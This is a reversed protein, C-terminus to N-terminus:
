LRCVPFSVQIADHTVRVSPEIDSELYYRDALESFAKKLGQQFDAIDDKHIRLGRFDKSLDIEHKKFSLEDRKLTTILPCLSKVEGQLIRHASRASMDLGLDKACHMFSQADHTKALKCLPHNHSPVYLPNTRALLKKGYVYVSAAIEIPSGIYVDCEDLNELSFESVVRVINHPSSGLHVGDNHMILAPLSSQDTRENILKTDFAFTFVSGEGLSSQIIEAERANERISYLAMGRGHVGWTDTHITDLKSTVRPEFITDWLEIPVGDGDDLMTIRRINSSKSSAVFINHAHADRANRLLEIVADEVVRIDQQAQRRQAESVQLRVFGGGLDSEVRLRSGDTVSEVFSLLSDKTM